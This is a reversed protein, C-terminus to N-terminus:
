PATVGLPESGPGREAPPPDKSAVATLRHFERALRGPDAPDVALTAALRGRAMIAVRDATREVEDLLHSSVLVGVGGAALRRMLEGLERIGGPDLGNMPEDLVLLGPRGLLAGAIGLRQKMGHSLHRVRKDAAGALGVEALVEGIRSAAVDRHYLQLYRLAQRCTLEPPLAPSEILFGAAGLAALRATGLDQGAIRVQGREPRVLGAIVRLTTSKGAGNPGLLGVVEGPAVQLSVEEVAVAAGFRKAIGVVELLSPPVAATYEVRAAADDRARAGTIPDIVLGV